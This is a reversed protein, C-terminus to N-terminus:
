HNQFSHQHHKCILTWTSAPARGVGGWREGKLTEEEEEEVNAGQLGEEPDGARRTVM